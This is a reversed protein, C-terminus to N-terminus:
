NKINEKQGFKKWFCNLILKSIARLGPNEKIHDPDLKIDKVRFYETLFKKKTKVIKM